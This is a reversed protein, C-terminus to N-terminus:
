FPFFLTFNLLLMNLLIMTRQGLGNVIRRKAWLHWGFYLNLNLCKWNDKTEDGPAAWGPFTGIIGCLLLVEPSYGPTAWLHIRLTGGLPMWFVWSGILWRIQSFYKRLIPINKIAWLQPASSADMINCYFKGKSHIITPYVNSDHLLLSSWWPPLTINNITCFKLVLFFINRM